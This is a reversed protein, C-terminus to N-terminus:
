KDEGPCIDDRKIYIQITGTSDQLKAFNAKGMDRVSMVRGALTINKFEEAKEESYGEKVSQATHTVEFLPAPYPDIGLAQLQQLKERRVVEQESLTQQM